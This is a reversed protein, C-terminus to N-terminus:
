WQTDDVAVGATAGITLELKPVIHFRTHIMYKPSKSKQVPKTKTMIASQIVHSRPLPLPVVDNTTKGHIKILCSIKSTCIIIMGIM